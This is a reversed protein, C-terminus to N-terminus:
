VNFDLIVFSYCDVDRQSLSGSTGIVYFPSFIKDTLLTFYSPTFEQLLIVHLVACLCSRFWLV